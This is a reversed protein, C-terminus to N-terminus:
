TARAHTRAHTRDRLAETYHLLSDLEDTLQKGGRSVKKGKCIAAACKSFVSGAKEMVLKLIHIDAGAETDDSQLKLMAAVKPDETKSKQLKTNINHLVTIPYQLMAIGMNSSAVGMGRNSALETFMERFDGRTDGPALKPAEDEEEAEEAEEDDTQEEEAEEEEEEEEEEEDVDEWEEEDEEESESDDDSQRPRKRPRKREGPADKPPPKKPPPTKTSPKKASADKRSAANRGTPGRAEAPKPLTKGKLTLTKGM